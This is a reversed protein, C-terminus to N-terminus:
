KIIHGHTCSMSIHYIISPFIQDPSWICKVFPHTYPVSSSRNSSTQSKGSTNGPFVMHAPCPIPIEWPFWILGHRIPKSGQSIDLVNSLHTHIPCINGEMMYWIEMDQVCPIKQCYLIDLVNSMHTDFTSSMEWSMSINFCQSMLVNLCQSERNVGMQWIYELDRYVGMQWCRGLFQSMLVNLCWSMLVNLCQSM